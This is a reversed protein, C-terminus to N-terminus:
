RFLDLMTLGLHLSLRTTGDALDLGTLESIRNLRYYLTTRHIHLVEATAPGNCASDLYVRLTAVLDGGSDVAMLRQLEDPLADHNLEAAPIRLLVSYPGLEKWRAIPGQVVIGAARRALHAQHAARHAEELGVFSSSVGAVCEFRGSAMDGFQSLLVQVHTEIASEDFPTSSGLLLVGIGADVASAVAVHRPRFAINLVSRLATEAHSEDMMSLHGPVGLEVAVIHEFSSGGPMASIEALAGRRLVPADGILDLITQEPIGTGTREREHAAMAAAVDRACENILTLETTTLTGNGDMVILQGFMSGQWRIPVCVRAQMGLEDNAPIIGATTWTSVGQALIHGIAKAGADRQLIARVRVDDEDGYHKSAFQMRVDSDNIVVSRQLREALADVTEQIGISAM